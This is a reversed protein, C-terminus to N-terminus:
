DICYQMRDITVEKTVIELIFTVRGPSRYNRLTHRFM